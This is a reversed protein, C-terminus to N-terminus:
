VSIPYQLWLSSVLIFSASNSIPIAGYFNLLKLKLLLIFLFLLLSTLSYLYMNETRLNM